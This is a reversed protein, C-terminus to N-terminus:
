VWFHFSLFTVSSLAPLAFSIPTLSFAVHLAHNPPRFHAPEQQYTRLMQRDPSNQAFHSRVQSQICCAVKDINLVRLLKSDEGTLSRSIPSILCMHIHFAATNILPDRVAILISSLYSTAPTTLVHTPLLLFLFSPGGLNRSQGFHVILDASEETKAAELFETKRLV